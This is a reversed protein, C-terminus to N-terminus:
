LSWSRGDFCYPVCSWHPVVVSVIGDCSDVTFLFSLSSSPRVFGVAVSFIHIAIGFLVNSSAVLVGVLLYVVMDRGDARSWVVSSFLSLPFTRGFAGTWISAVLTIRIRDRYAGSPYGRIM